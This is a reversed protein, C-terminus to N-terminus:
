GTKKPHTLPFGAILSFPLAVLAGLAAGWALVQILSVSEMSSDLLATFGYGFVYYVLMGLLVGGVVVNVLSLSNRKRLFKVLPFGLLLCSLYSVSLSFLLVLLIDHRGTYSSGSLYPIALMYLAPFIPALIYALKTRNIKVVIGM